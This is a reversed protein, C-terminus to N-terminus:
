EMEAVKTPYTQIRPSEINELAINVALRVLEPHVHNPFDPSETTLVTEYVDIAHQLDDVSKLASEFGLVTEVDSLPIFNEKKM